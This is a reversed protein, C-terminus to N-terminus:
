RPTKSARRPNSRARRDAPKLHLSICPAVFPMCANVYAKVAVITLGNTYEVYSTCPTAMLQGCLESLSAPLSSSSRSTSAIETLPSTQIRAVVATTTTTKNAHRPAAAQTRLVDRRQIRHFGDSSDLEEILSAVVQQIVSDGVFAVRRSGLSHAVQAGCSFPVLAGSHSGGGGGGSIGRTAINKPPPSLMGRSALEFWALIQSSCCRDGQLAIRTLNCAPSARRQADAVSPAQLLSHANANLPLAPDTNGDSIPLLPACGAAIQNLHKSFMSSAM